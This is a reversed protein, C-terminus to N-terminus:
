KCDLEDKVADLNTRFADIETISKYPTKWLKKLCDFKEISKTEADEDCTTQKVALIILAELQEEISLLRAATNTVDNERYFGAELYDLLIKRREIISVYHGCLNPIETELKSHDSDYSAILADIEDLDYLLERLSLYSPANTQAPRDGDVRSNINWNVDISARLLGSNDFTEVFRCHAVNFWIDTRKQISAIKLSASIDYFRYYPTRGPAIREQFYNKSDDTISHWIHHYQASAKFVNDYRFGAGFDAEGQVVFGDDPNPFLFYMRTLLNISGNAFAFLDWDDIQEEFLLTAPIRATSMGVLRSKYQEQTLRMPYQPNWALVSGTVGNGLSYVRYAYYGSNLLNIEPNFAVIIKPGNPETYLLKQGSLSINLFYQENNLRYQANAVQGFSFNLALKDEENEVWRYNSVTQALLTSQFFLCPLLSLCVKHISLAWKCHFLDLVTM